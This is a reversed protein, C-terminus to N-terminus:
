MLVVGMAYGSEYIEVKFPNQLNPFVLVLAQSINQNQEDLVKLRNKRWQFSKNINTIAHLPVVV